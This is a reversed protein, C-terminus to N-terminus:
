PTAPGGISGLYFGGHAACAWTVRASRNGERAHRPVAPAQFEEVDSDMRGATTPRFSGACLLSGPAYGQHTTAPGAYNVAHDCLHQPM